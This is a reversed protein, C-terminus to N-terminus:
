TEVAPDFAPYTTEKAPDGRELSSASNKTQTSTISLYRWGYDATDSYSSTSVARYGCTKGSHKECHKTRREYGNAGPLYDQELIFSNIGGDHWDEVGTSVPHPPFDYEVAYEDFWRIRGWKWTM